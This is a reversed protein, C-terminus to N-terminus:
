LGVSKIQRKLEAIAIPLEKEWDEWRCEIAINGKYSIQKLAKLYPTFDDGAVGPPTRSEKEAIHCHRLYDGALVISEPSEGERMMHFIDALLRVNPHDVEKVIALGEAVTNIFNNEGSNLPEVTITIGHRQAINGMVRCVEIFQKRAEKYPFGDPVQRAGGSGLAVIKIGTQEARRMAVEVHRAIAATDVGEGTLRIDGPFLVNTSYIPTATKKAIALHKEFTADEERPILFSLANAEIFAYKNATILEWEDPNSCVGIRDALSSKTCSVAMAALFVLLVKLLHTNM